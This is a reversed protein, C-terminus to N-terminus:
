LKGETMELLKQRAQLMHWRATVETTGVLDAIERFSLEETSRLLFIVRPTEPLQLLAAQLQEGLESRQLREDVPMDRGSDMAGTEMAMPRKRRKNDLFCNTAIRLLWSRMNTGPQFQSLNEIAQLFTQQTLDEADHSKSTLRYMLRYVGAWHEKVLSEATAGDSRMSDANQDPRQTV